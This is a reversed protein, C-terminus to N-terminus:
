IKGKNIKKYTWPNKEVGSSIYYWDELLWSPFTNFYKDTKKKLRKEFSMM